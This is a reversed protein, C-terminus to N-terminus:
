WERTAGCGGGGVLQCLIGQLAVDNRQKVERGRNTLSDICGIRDFRHIAHNAFEGLIALDIGVYFQCHLQDVNGNVFRRLPPGPPDM